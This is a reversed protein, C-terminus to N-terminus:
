KGIEKGVRALLADIPLKANIGSDGSQVLQKLNAIGVQQARSKVLISILPNYRDINWFYHIDFIPSINNISLKHELSRFLEMPPTNGSIGSFLQYDFISYIIQTLIEHAGYKPDILGARRIIEDIYPEPIKTGQSVHVMSELFSPEFVFNEAAERAVYKWWDNGSFEKSFLHLCANMFEGCFRKMELANFSRHIGLPIEQDKCDSHIFPLRLVATNAAAPYMFTHQKNYHYTRAPSLDIYLIKDGSKSGLIVKKIYKPNWTESANCEVFKYDTVGFIDQGIKRICAKLLNELGTFGELVSDHYKAVFVEAYLKRYHSIDWSQISLEPIQEVAADPNAVIESTLLADFNKNRDPNGKEFKSQFSFLSRRVLPSSLLRHRKLPTWLKQEQQVLPILALRLNTLWQIADFEPIALRKGMKYFDGDASKKAVRSANSLLDNWVSNLQVYKTDKKVSTEKASKKGKAEKQVPQEEPPQTKEGLDKEVNDLLVSRIDKWLFARQGDNSVHTFIARLTNSNTESPEIENEFLYSYNEHALFPKIVIGPVKKRITVNDIEFNLESDLLSKKNPIEYFRKNAKAVRVNYHESFYNRLNTISADLENLNANLEQNSDPSNAYRNSNELFQNVQTRIAPDTIQDVYQRVSNVFDKNRELSTIKSKWSKLLTQAYLSFTADPHLSAFVLLANSIESKLTFLQSALKANPSANFEDVTNSFTINISGTIWNNFIDFNDFLSPAQKGGISLNFLPVANINNIDKVHANNHLWKTFQSHEPDKNRILKVPQEFTGVKGIQKSYPVLKPKKKTIDELGGRQALSQQRALEKAEKELRRKEEIEARRQEAEKRQKLMMERREAQQKKLSVKKERKDKSKFRKSFTIIGGFLQRQPLNIGRSATSQLVHRLM